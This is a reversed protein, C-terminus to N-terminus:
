VPGGSYYGGESPAAQLGSGEVADRFRARAATDRWAHHQDKGEWEVLVLVKAPDDESCLVQVSRAGGVTKIEQIAQTYIAVYEDRRAPDVTQFRVEYIM